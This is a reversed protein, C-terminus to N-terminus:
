VSKSYYEIPYDLGRLEYNITGTLSCYKFVYQKLISIERFREQEKPIHQLFNKSCILVMKSKARTTLVNIRNLNYIFDEEARLQDKASVGITGIIMDRESGQFKEVSFITDKLATMLKDASLVNLNTQALQQFLLNIITRSHANHPAVIGIGEYWFKIQDDETIPNVMRFYNLILDVALQAELMSVSTDFQNNHVLAAVVVEPDLINTTWGSTASVTGPLLRERNPSNPSASLTEYIDLSATFDVILRHSRYNFELQRSDLAFGNENKYYDFVSGLHGRLNEPPKVQQVPPLQADDGVLVVHTKIAEPNIISMQTLQVPNIPENRYAFDYKLKVDGSRVHQLISLMEDTPYQSAEDVIILDFEVREHALILIDDSEDDLKHVQHANGFYIVNDFALDELKTESKPTIRTNDFNWGNGKKVLSNVKFTPSDDSMQPLERGQSMIYVKQASAAMNPQGDPGVGKCIKELLVNSATYAFSTILINNNYIGQAARRELFEDILAVITQSKGTGPPGQILRLPSELAFFIAETQSPDPPFETKCSLAEPRPYIISQLMDPAYMFIQPTNFVLKEPKIPPLEKMPGIDWMVAVRHGLMTSGMQNRDLLSKKPSRKSFLKNAWYGASDPYLFWSSASPIIEREEALRYLDKDRAETKVRYFQGESDWSMDELTIKWERAGYSLISDRIQIPILLVQDGESFKVNRSLGKLNFEYGYKTKTNVTEVVRKLDSVQAAELRGIASEPYTSRLEVVELEDVSETLTAFLYWNKALAHYARPLIDTARTNVQTPITIPNSSILTRTNNNFQFHNVIFGLTRVKSFIQSQIQRYKVIGKNPDEEADLIYQHWHSRDMNNFLDSWYNRNYGFNDLVQGATKHWTYNIPLPMGITSEVFKSIDYIRKLQNPDTVQSAPSVWQSIFYLDTYLDKNNIVSQLHKEILEEIKEVIEPSWYYFASSAFSSGSNVYKELILTVQIIKSVKQIITHLFQEEAENTIDRTINVFALEALTQRSPKGSPTLEGPLLFRLSQREGVKTAQFEHLHKAFKKVDSIAIDLFGISQLESFVDAVKDKDYETNDRFYEIWTRWWKSFLEKHKAQSRISISSELLIGFGFALDTTSDTEITFTVKNRTSSPISTSYIDDPSAYIIGKDVLAKTKHRLLPLISNIPRPYTTLSMSPLANALDGISRINDQKLQELISHNVNPLLELDVKQSWTGTKPNYGSHKLCDDLYDCKDCHAGFRQQVETRDIPINKVLSDVLESTTTYLIEVQDVEIPISFERLEDLDRLKINEITPLVGNGDVLIVYDTLNHDRVYYNLTHLYYLIENYYKHGVRDGPISKIDIVNIGFKASLDKSDAETIKGQADLYRIKSMESLRRLMIIDPRLTSVTLGAFKNVFSPSPVYESELLVQDFSKAAYDRFMAPTLNTAFVNNNKAIGARVPNEGKRRALYEGVDRIELYVEQEYKVGRDRILKDSVPNRTRTLIEEKKRWTSYDQAVRSLSLFVNRDCEFEAHAAFIKKEVKREIKKGM